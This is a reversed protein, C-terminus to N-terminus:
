MHSERRTQTEIDRRTQIEVSTKRPHRSMFTQLSRRTAQDQGLGAAALRHGADRRGVSLQAEGDMRRQDPEAADTGAM